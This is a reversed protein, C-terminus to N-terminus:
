FSQLTKAHPPTEHGHLIRGKGLRERATLEMSLLRYNISFLALAIVFTFGLILITLKLRYASAKQRVDLLADEAERMQATIETTVSSFPATQQRIRVQATEDKPYKKKLEISRQFLLM